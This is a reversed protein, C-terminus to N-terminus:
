RPESISPPRGIGTAVPDRPDPPDGGPESWRRVLWDGAQKLARAIGGPAFFLVLLLIAGYYLTTRIADVQGALVPLYVFLVGGILSGVVSGMGGVVMMALLNISMLLDMEVPSVFGITYVHLWGAAGGFAAALAFALAKYRHLSIGVSVAATENGRILSLARGLRGTMMNRALVFLAAAIAVVVYYKWQDTDLDTWEPARALPASM